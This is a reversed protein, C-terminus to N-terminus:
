GNSDGYQGSISRSNSSISRKIHTGIISPVLGGPTAHLLIAKEPTLNGMQFLLSHAVIGDVTLSVADNYSMQDPIKFCHEVRCVVYEGWGRREPLAM